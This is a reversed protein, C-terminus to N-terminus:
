DRTFLKREKNLMRIGIAYRGEGAELCRAIEGRVYIFSPSDLDKTKRIDVMVTEGVEFPVQAHVLVGELSINTAVGIVPNEEDGVRWLEVVREITHRKSNRRGRRLAKGDPTFFLEDAV